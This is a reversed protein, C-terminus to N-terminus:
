AAQPPPLEAIPRRESAEIAAIRARLEDESLHPLLQKAAVLIEGSVRLNTHRLHEFDAHYAYLLKEIARWNGAEAQRWIMEDLRERRNGPRGPDDLAAAVQDAFAADHWYGGNRLKRFATGTSGLMRAANGPDYGDRVLEVYEAKLEETIHEVLIQPQRRNNEAEYEEDPEFDFDDV